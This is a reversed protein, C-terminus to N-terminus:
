HEFWNEDLEFRRKSRFERRRGSEEWQRISDAGVCRRTMGNALEQEKSRGSVGVRRSKLRSRDAEREEDECAVFRKGVLKETECPGIERSRASTPVQEQLKSLIERTQLVFPLPYPSLSLILPLSLSPPQAPRPKLSHILYAADPLSLCSSISRKNPDSFVSAFSSVAQYRERKFSFSLAKSGTRSSCRQSPSISRSTLSVITEDIKENESWIKKREGVDSYTTAERSQAARISTM